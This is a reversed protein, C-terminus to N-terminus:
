VATMLARRHSPMTMKPIQRAPGMASANSQHSWARGGPLSVSALATTRASETPSATATAAITARENCDNTERGAECRRSMRGGRTRGTVNARGHGGLLGGEGSRM